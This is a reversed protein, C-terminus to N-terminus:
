VGSPDHGDCLETAEEASDATLTKNPISSRSRLAVLSLDNIQLSAYGSSSGRSLTILDKALYRPLMDQGGLDVSHIKIALDAHRTARVIARNSLNALAGCVIAILSVTSAVGYAIRLTAAAYVYVNHHFYQTM